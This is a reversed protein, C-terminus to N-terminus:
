TMKELPKLARAAGACNRCADGEGCTGIGEEWEAAEAECEKAAAEIADAQVALILDACVYGHQEYWWAWDELTKM